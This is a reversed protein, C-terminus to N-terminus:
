AVSIWKRVSGNYFSSKFAARWGGLECWAAGPPLPEHDADMVKVIESAPFGQEKLKRVKDRLRGLRPDKGRRRRSPEPTLASSAEVAQIVKSVVANRLTANEIAADKAIQVAARAIDLTIAAREHALELEMPKLEDFRAASAVRAEAEALATALEIPLAQYRDASKVHGESQKGPKSAKM